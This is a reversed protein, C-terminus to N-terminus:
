KESFGKQKKTLLEEIQATLTERFKQTRRLLGEAFPDDQELCKCYYEKESCQIAQYAELLNKETGIGDHKCKAIRYAIDARLHDDYGLCEMAKCYLTFAMKENKPWYKEDLYMDGLKYTANANGNLSSLLFWEFAKKYDPAGVRGYYYCYGLNCQAQVEGLEAAKTYLAMARAYNQPLLTGSYYLAGLNNMSLFDNEAVGEEYYQVIKQIMEPTNAYQPHDFAFCTAWAIKARLDGQAIREELDCVMEQLRKEM